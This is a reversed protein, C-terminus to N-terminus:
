SEPLSVIVTKHRSNAGKIISVSSPPVGFHQAILVILERNAAGKQPPSHIWAHFNDDGIKELRSERAHPKVKVSIKIM